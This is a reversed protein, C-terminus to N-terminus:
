LLHHGATWWWVPMWGSDPTSACLLGDPEEHKALSKVLWFFTASYSPQVLKNNMDKGPCSLALFCTKFTAWPWITHCTSSAQSPRASFYNGRKFGWLLEQEEASWSTLKTASGLCPSTAPGVGLALVGPHVKAAATQPFARDLKQSGSFLSWPLLEFTDKGRGESAAQSSM